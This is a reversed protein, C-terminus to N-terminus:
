SMFVNNPKLKISTYKLENNADRQAIYYSELRLFAITDRGTLFVFNM